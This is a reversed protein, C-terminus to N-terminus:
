PEVPLLPGSVLRVESREAPTLRAVLSAISLGSGPHRAQPAIEALPELVFAREAMRPHPLTLIPTTMVTDGALLIDVDVTRPANPFSRNRGLCTEVDRIRALLQFLDMTTWIRCAANYYAPQLQFGKPATEYASSCVIGRAGRTLTRLASKLNARRDGLNSGLGLYVETLMM